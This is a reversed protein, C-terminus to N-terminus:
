MSYLEQWEKMLPVYSPEIDAKIPLLRAKTDVNGSSTSWHWEDGNRTCHIVEDFFRPVTPALKKGLASLMMTVRGTVEDREPELHGTLIFHCRTDGCLKQVLRACNDMAMGWDAMSKIPKAGVVLDMAMINVGSWSDLFLVRTNDWTSVDGFEEGHQDVFNHLQSLLGIFQQYQQKNMGAQKQLASQDLSNIKRANDQMSEFTPTAPPLYAYHLRSADYGKEKIAKMLPGMGPETFIGFVELDLEPDLLSALAHTKGAGPSGLELVNMGPINPDIQSM